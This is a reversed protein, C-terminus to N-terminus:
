LLVERGCQLQLQMPWIKIFFTSLFSFYPHTEYVQPFSNLVSMHLITNGAEDEWNLVRKEKHHSRRHCTRRLWGLLIELVHFQKYKVAIHLATESRVTVDEICGPCVSLFKVVLDFNGTQTAIHLPTLGEIGKVRVLDKNIDVFRCVMRHYKNQLALHIPSLGYENLKWAFSPKLRMIETAFSTHGSAAAIHLPTDVFPILNYRELIYPDMQILKYLLDIDGMQAAANLPDNM